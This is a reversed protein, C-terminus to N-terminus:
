HCPLFKPYIFMTVIVLFIRPLKKVFENIVGKTEITVETTRWKITKALKVLNLFEFVTKMLECANPCEM